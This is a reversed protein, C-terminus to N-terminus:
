KIKQEQIFSAYHTSYIYNHEYNTSFILFNAAIKESAEGRIFTRINHLMEKNEELTKENIGYFYNKSRPYQIDYFLKEKNTKYNVLGLTGIRATAPKPSISALLPETNGFVNLMHYTSSIINNIDKWYNKISLDGVAEEVLRNSIIYINELLASRAYNQLISFTARDKLAQDHTLEIDDPKIYIITIQNDKIQELIRLSCGSINGAGCLIFTTKGKCKKLNLKEYKKEYDEHTKQHQLPLFTTYGKDEVDICFVQYQEYNQFNEAIQCGAHGLGIINM